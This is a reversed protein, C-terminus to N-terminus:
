KDPEKLHCQECVGDEEPGGFWGNNKTITSGCKCCKGNQKLLIKEALKDYRRWLTIGVIAMIVAIVIPIVKFTFSMNRGAELWKEHEGSNYWEVCDDFKEQQTTGSLDYEEPHENINDCSSVDRLAIDDLMGDYYSIISALMIVVAACLIGPIILDTWKM